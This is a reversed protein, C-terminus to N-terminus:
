LGCRNFVGAHARFGCVFFGMVLLLFSRHRLAEQLAEPITQETIMRGTQQNGSYPALPMALLAMVLASGALIHLATM